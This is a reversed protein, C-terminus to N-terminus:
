PASGASALLAIGTALLCAQAAAYFMRQNIRGTLWAGIAVGLPVLPSLMASAALNAASFQGNWGYPLLKAANVTLFFANLTAVYVRSPLRQPLLYMMVPPGGAHAIFSTYGSVAALATGGRPPRGA